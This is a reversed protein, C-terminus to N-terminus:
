EDMDELQDNIEEHGLRRERTEIAKEERDASRKENKGHRQVLWKWGARKIRGGKRM